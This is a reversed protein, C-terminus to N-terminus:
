KLVEEIKAIAEQKTATDIVAWNMNLADRAMELAAKLQDARVIVETISHYGNEKLLNQYYDWKFEQEEYRLAFGRIQDPISMTM